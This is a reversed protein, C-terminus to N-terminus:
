GGGTEHSIEGREGLKKKKDFSRLRHESLECKSFGEKRGRMKKSSAVGVKLEHMCLM